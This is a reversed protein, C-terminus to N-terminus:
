KKSCMIVATLPPNNIACEASNDGITIVKPVSVRDTESVCIASVLIEDPNCLAASSQGTQTKASRVVRFAAGPDGKQGPQGPAGDKGAVGDKGPAGDKGPEGKAGQPGPPGQEGQKGSCAALSTALMAVTLLSAFRM